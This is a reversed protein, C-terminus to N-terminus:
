IDNEHFIKKWKNVKQRNIDKCRFYTEQLCCIALDIKKNKQKEGNLWNSKQNARKEM